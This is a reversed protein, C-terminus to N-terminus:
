ILYYESGNGNEDKNIFEIIEKVDSLNYYEELKDFQKQYDAEQFFDERDALKPKFYKRIDKFTGELNFEADWKNKIIFKNMGDMEKLIINRIIESVSRNDKDALKQLTEFEEEKIRISIRRSKGEGYKAM